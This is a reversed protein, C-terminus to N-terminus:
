FNPNLGRERTQVLVGREILANTLGRARIREIPLEDLEEFPVNRESWVFTAVLASDPDLTKRASAYARGLADLRLECRRAGGIACNGAFELFPAPNVLDLQGRGAPRVSEQIASLYRHRELAWMELSGWDVASPLASSHIAHFLLRATRGNGDVFPHIAFMALTMWAAASLPDVPAGRVVEVASELMEHCDGPPPPEFVNAVDLFSSATVRISGANTEKGAPARGEAFANLVYPTEQAVVHDLLGMEKMTMRTDIHHLAESVGNVRDLISSALFRRRAVIVPGDLSSWIPRATATAEVLHRQQVVEFLTQVFDDASSLAAQLSAQARENKETVDEPLPILPPLRLTV